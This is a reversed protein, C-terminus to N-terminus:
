PTTSTPTPTTKNSLAMAEVFLEVRAIPGAMSFVRFEFPVDASTSGGEIDSWRRMGLVSGDDAWAVALINLTLYSTKKNEFAVSGSIKAAKDQYLLEIIQDEIEAKLYRAEGEAFPLEFDLAARAELKEAWEPPFYSAAPLSSHPPIVNILTTALTEANKGTEDSLSVRLTVNEMAVDKENKIVTFCYVAALANRYCYSAYVPEDPNPGPTGQTGEAPAATESAIDDTQEPNIATPTIPIILESGVTLANPHHDPNATKLAELSIGYYLAISFMDDNPGLKFTVPKPTETQTPSPEPSFAPSPSPSSGPTASPIRTPTHSPEPPLVPAIKPDPGCANLAFVMLLIIFRTLCRM